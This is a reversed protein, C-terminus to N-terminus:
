ALGLADFSPRPSAASATTSAYSARAYGASSIGNEAVTSARFEHFCSL